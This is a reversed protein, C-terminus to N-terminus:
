SNKSSIPGPWGHALLLPFPRPGRGRVHWFHLDVGDVECLFQALGNLGAEQRRWDYETRWYACLERLYAVDAGYAWGADAISEPWRTRALRARLDDLTADPVDITFPRPPM